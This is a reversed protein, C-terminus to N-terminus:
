SISFNDPIWISSRIVVFDTRGVPLDLWLVLNWHFRRVVKTTTRCLRVSIVYGGGQLALPSLSWIHSKCMKCLLEYSYFQVFLYNQVMELRDRRRCSNGCFFALVTYTMNSQELCLPMKSCRQRYTHLHEVDSATGQRHQLRNRGNRWVLTVYRYCMVVCYLLYSSQCAIIRSLVM